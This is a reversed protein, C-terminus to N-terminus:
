LILAFEPKTGQPRTTIHELVFCGAGTLIEGVESQLVFWEKFEQCETIVRTISDIYQVTCCTGNIM